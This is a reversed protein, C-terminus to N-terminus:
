CLCNNHRVINHKEPKAEFIWRAVLLDQWFYESKTAGGEEYWDHLCPMLTLKGSYGKRFLRWDRLFRPIGRLSQLFRRPDIGFQSSLFWYLKILTSRITM